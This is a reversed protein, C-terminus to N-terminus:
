QERLKAAIEILVTGASTKRETIELATSRILAETDRNLHCGDCVRKWLPTAKDFITRVAPHRGQVHEFFLATGGPKLVRVIEEMAKEPQPITCFVLTSVVTDFSNSAFHLNEADGEVVLFENDSKLMRPLSRERFEKQPEIATIHSAEAPYYLFNLGTGSGIELVEGHAKGILRRRINGMLVSELPKMMPDYLAAFFNGLPIM